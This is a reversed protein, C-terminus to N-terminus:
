IKEKENIIRDSDSLPDVKEERELEDHHNLYVKYYIKYLELLKDEADKLSDEPSRDDRVEFPILSTDDVAESFNNFSDEFEKQFKVNSLKPLYNKEELLSKCKNIRVRLKHFPDM